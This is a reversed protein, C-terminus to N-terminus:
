ESGEKERWREYGDHALKYELAAKGAYEYALLRKAEAREVTSGALKVGADVSRIISDWAERETKFHTNTYCKAGDKTYAPIGSGNPEPDYEFPVPATDGDTGRYGTMPREKGAPRIREPYRDVGPQFM